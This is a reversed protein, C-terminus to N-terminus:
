DDSSAEKRRRGRRRIFRSFISTKNGSTDPQNDSTVPKYEGTSEVAGDQVSRQREVPESPKPTEIDPEGASIDEAARRDADANAIQKGNDVEKKMIEYLIQEGTIDENRRQAQILREECTSLTKLIEPPVNKNLLALKRKLYLFYLIGAVIVALFALFFIIIGIM